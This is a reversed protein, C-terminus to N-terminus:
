VSVESLRIRGTPVHVLCDVACSDHHSCFWLPRRRGPGAWRLIVGLRVTGIPYTGIVAAYHAVFTVNIDWDDNRYYAVFGTNSSACHASRVDSNAHEVRPLGTAEDKVLVAGAVPGQGCDLRLIPLSEILEEAVRERARFQKM